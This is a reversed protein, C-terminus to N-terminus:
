KPSLKVGIGVAFAGALLIALGLYLAFYANEGLDEAQKFGGLVAISPDNPLYRVDLTDGESVQDYNEKLITILLPVPPEELTELGLKYVKSRSSGSGQQFETKLTIVAQADRGQTTLEQAESGIMLSLIATLVGFFVLSLGPWTYVNLYKRM